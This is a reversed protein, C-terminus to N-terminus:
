INELTLVLGVPVLLQGVEQKSEPSDCDNGILLSKEDGRPTIQASCRRLLQRTSRSELSDKSARPHGVLQTRLTTM